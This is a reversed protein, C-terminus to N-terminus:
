KWLARITSESDCCAAVPSGIIFRFLDATAKLMAMTMARGNEANPCAVWIRVGTLKVRLPQVPRGAPTVTLPDPSLKTTTVVLTSLLPNVWM